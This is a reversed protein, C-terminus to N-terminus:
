DNIIVPDLPIWKGTRKEYVKIQYGWEGRATNKDRYHFQAGSGSTGPRDFQDAAKPDYFQIGDDKFEYDNNRLHWHIMVNQNGRVVLRTIDVSVAPPSGTVFVQIQCQPLTCTTSEPTPAIGTPTQCGALVTVLIVSAFITRNM